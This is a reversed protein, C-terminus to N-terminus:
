GRGLKRHREWGERLRGHRSQMEAEADCRESEANGENGKEMRVVDSGSM